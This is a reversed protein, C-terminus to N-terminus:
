TFTCDAWSTCGDAGRFPAHQTIEALGGFKRIEPAHYARKQAPKENEQGANAHNQNTLNTDM